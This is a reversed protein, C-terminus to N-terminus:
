TISRLYAYSQRIAEIPPVATQDQEVFYHQVGIREAEALIAKWDLSGKGVPVFHASDQNMEFSPPFGPKRDKLHLMKVRSGLSQILLLPDHGAQAAWYCDVECFVLGPDTQEILIDYGTKGSSLPRFEYDHNHFAFRMGLDKVRQGWANFQKAATAFGEDSGWLSSPIASCVMWSLGLEKAYSFRTDFDGFNFHGSPATLGAGDFIHRLAEATYSYVGAYAEVEQYGIRRIQELIHPLDQEAEKRVTYLQVGLPIADLAWSSRGAVAM